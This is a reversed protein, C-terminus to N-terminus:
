PKTFIWYESYKLVPTGLDTDRGRVKWFVDGSPLTNWFTAGMQWSRTSVIERYNYTGNYTLCFGVQYENDTGGDPMWWFLPPSSASFEDAPAELAIATLSGVADTCEDAGMDYETGTGEAGNDEVDVPRDEDDVDTVIGDDTGTDVCLSIAELHYAPSTKFQPDRAIVGSGVTLTSTGDVYAGSYGGDVDSYSIDLTSNSVLAVETGNNWLISNTIISDSDYLYVAGGYGVTAIVNDSFTCHTIDADSSTAYLGAGNEAANNDIICNILTVDSSSLYVGGGYDAANDTIECNMITPTSSTNCNIGGGYTADGGTITFGDVIADSTEGDDFYFGRGSGECDITCNASGGTSSLVIAKGGFDLNKNNAGTYTGNSVAVTQVEYISAADLAAQITAYTM